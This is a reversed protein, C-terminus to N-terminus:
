ETLIARIAAIEEATVGIDLLYKEVQTQRSDGPAGHSAIGRLWEQFYPIDRPRPFYSLSSLEYELFADEESAGLLMDLLFAIEGTRDVGGMCHFYVPYADPDAFTRITQAFLKNQEPTFSNYANISITVWRIDEGLVSSTTHLASIQEPYRLDLDTRIGLTDHMFAIGEPTIQYYGNMETGRYVMGQRTRRGEALPKGGWDRCNHPIRGPPLILRPSVATRFEGIRSAHGGALPELRWYYTRGTELNYIEAAQADGAEVSVVPKAFSRDRAIVLRCAESSQLHFAVPDPLGMDDDPDLQDLEVIPRQARLATQERWDPRILSVTEGQSPSLLQPRTATCSALLCMALALAPLFARM